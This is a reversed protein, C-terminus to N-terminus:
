KEFQSGNGCPYHDVSVVFGYTYCEKVVFYIISHLKFCRQTLYIVVIWYGYLKM